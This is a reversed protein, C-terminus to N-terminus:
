AAVHDVMVQPVELFHGDLTLLRAGHQMASAAIWIDNTPIPTGAQWLAAVIVAYRAATEADVAVVEARPSALFARLERENKARQRGRTFGALLEGLIVPSLLIQDARQIALKVGPHDRMFASYASTDVLVRRVEV